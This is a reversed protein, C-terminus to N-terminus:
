TNKCAGRRTGNAPTPRSNAQGAACFRQADAQQLSRMYKVIDHPDCFQQALSHIRPDGIQKRMEDVLLQLCHKDNLPELLAM